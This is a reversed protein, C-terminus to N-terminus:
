LHPRAPKAYSDGNSERQIHIWTATGSVTPTYGLPEDTNCNYQGFFITMLTAHSFTRLHADALQVGM